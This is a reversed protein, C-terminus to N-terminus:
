DLNVIRGVTIGNQVLRIEGEPISPDLRFVQNGIMEERVGCWCHHGKEDLEWQHEMHGFRGVIDKM